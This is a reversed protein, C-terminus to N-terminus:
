EGTVPVTAESSNPVMPSPGVPECGTDITYISETSGTDNAGGPRGFASGTSSRKKPPRGWSRAAAQRSIERGVALRALRYARAPRYDTMVHMSRSFLFELRVHKPVGHRMSPHRARDIM